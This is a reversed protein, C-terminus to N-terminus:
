RDVRGVEARLYLRDVSTARVVYRQGSVDLYDGPIVAADYALLVVPDLAQGAQGAVNRPDTGNRDPHVLWCAMTVAAGAALLVNGEADVGAQPRTRSATDILSSAVTARMGTIDADTLM